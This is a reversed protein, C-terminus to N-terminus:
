FNLKLALQIIRPNVSTSTILGYTPSPIFAPGVVTGANLNTSSPDAFQSANFANFFEARFELNLQESRSTLPTKKVIAIDFNRQDPGRVVGVGLNGFDTGGDSTIVPPGTVCAANLYNNLRSNVSGHTALQGANCGAALEARDAGPNAIGFANTANTDVITLYHGAQFTTVGAVSWGALFRGALSLHDKPGPIEYVYSIVLRQPRVFSDPGYRAAPDNQNGLPIGGNTGTTYGNDGSLSRAWTYSALIELGKSFRKNLSVNLANYWSSGASEIIDSNSSSLGEIPVRLALNALTNSMEGNIPNSSSASLAQNFDRIQLLHTGRAGEYGVELVLNRALQSELNLSYEQVVPPRFTPAFTIPTLTEGLTQQLALSYPPFFPVTAPASPFPSSFPQVLETRVLGFPPAGLLQLFPQGTSRTFFTGYGGRLVFRDTYPLQWAFGIRPAVNNQHDENIAANNHAQTVGAPITGKFNSAVVYGAISGAAPATPDALAINFIAARGLDDGIAGQREYRVGLNVTLRSTLKIDDQAFADGNWARWAREPLGAFDESEFVNGLLLDPVDLFIAAGLFHFKPFNIEQRSIGGGFRLTNKGRVYEIFDEFNYTNQVLSTGQGNGGLEFQGFVAIGPFTNDFGPATTGILSYTFPMTGSQGPANVLPEGQIVQNNLRNYGIVLQNFLNSRFTYTHTLSFDRFAGPVEQPFGPLTPSFGAPFTASQNSDDFFFRGSFKSKTTHIFDVDTVFQDANYRCNQTLSSVGTATNQPTPILFNGNPLTLQLLNVAQPSLNSGDALITQGTLPSMEGAFAAGLSAQSRNGANALEPPTVFTSLCAASTDLGNIQRTGQYSAFFLLKDKKVPGGLSFGFQNQKLSARPQGAANLFFDNANLADNRLFEFVSGHFDNTGGKTVVEVNAGANRGYSADYQGTQVKFEQIADPNPIPVGGSFFGSAMLDNVQSGNMQYNNDNTTGGHASFGDTAANLGSGGRGLDSANNVDTVVGPSLGIIQTYNRNVLPLDRVMEGDTVHGLAPNETELAASEGNVTVTQTIEGLELRINVVETETVFVHISILVLTKFGSKSAELRYVGPLLLPALYSGNTQSNVTRADGTTVATLKIAAGSVSSGSPDTVTGAVAGTNASQACSGPIAVQSFWSCALLFLSVLANRWSRTRMRLNMSALM